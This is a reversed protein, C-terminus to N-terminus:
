SANLKCQKQYVEEDLDTFATENLSALFLDDDVGPVSSNTNNIESDGLLGTVYQSSILM